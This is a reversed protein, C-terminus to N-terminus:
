EKDNRKALLYIGYLMTYLAAKRKKNDQAIKKEFEDSNMNSKKLIEREPEKYFDLPYPAYDDLAPELSDEKRNNKIIEIFLNVYGFDSEKVLGEKVQKLLNLYSKQFQPDISSLVNNESLYGQSDIRLILRVFRDTGEIGDKREVIPLVEIKFKENNIYHTAQIILDKLFDLIDSAHKMNVDVIKEREKIAKAEPVDLGLKESIDSPERVGLLGESLVQNQYVMMCVYDVLTKYFAKKEKDNGYKYFCSWLYEQGEKFVPNLPSGCEGVLKTLFRSDHLSKALAREHAGTEESAFPFVYEGLDYIEPHYEQNKIHENNEGFGFDNTYEIEIRCDIDKGIKQILKEDLKEDLKARIVFYSNSLNKKLLRYNGDILSNKFLSLLATVVIKPTIVEKIFGQKAVFNKINDVTDNRDNSFGQIANLKHIAYYFLLSNYDIFIEKINCGMKNFCEEIILRKLQIEQNKKNNGEEEILAMDNVAFCFGDYRSIKINYNEDIIGQAFLASIILPLNRRDVGKLNLGPKGEVSSYEETIRKMKEVINSYEPRKNEHHLLFIAHFALLSNYDVKALLPGTKFKQEISFGEESIDNVCVNFHANILGKEILEKKCNSFSFHRPTQGNRGLLEEIKSLVLGEELKDKATQYDPNNRLCCIVCFTLLSWVGLQVSSNLNTIEEIESEIRDKNNDYSIAFEPNIIKYKKDIIHQSVLYEQVSKIEEQKIVIGTIRHLEDQVIKIPPEPGKEGKYKSQKNDENKVTKRQKIQYKDFLLQQKELQNIFGCLLQAFVYLILVRRDIFSYELSDSKTYRIAFSFIIEELDNHIVNYNEDILEKEVLINKVNEINDESIDVTEGLLHKIAGIIDKTTLKKSFNKFNNSWRMCLIVSFISLELFPVQKTQETKQNIRKM